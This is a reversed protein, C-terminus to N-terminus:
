AYRWCSTPGRRTILAPTAVIVQLLAQQHPPATCRGLDLPLLCWGTSAIQRHIVSNCNDTSMHGCCTGPAPHIPCIGKGAQWEVLLWASTCTTAIYRHISHLLMHRRTQCAAIMCCILHAPCCETAHEPHEALATQLFHFDGEVAIVFWRADCCETCCCCSCPCSNISNKTVISVSPLERDSASALCRTTM